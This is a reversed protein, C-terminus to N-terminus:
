PPNHRHIVRDITSLVTELDFPKGVYGAAHIAQALAAATQAATMVVLPTVIGRDNLTSALEQGGMVPMSMDTLIVDFPSESILDLAQRGHVATRVEYGEERFFEALLTRISEDDDVVLIRASSKIGRSSGM